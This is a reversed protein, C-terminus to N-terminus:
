TPAGPRRWLHYDQHPVAVRGRGISALAGIRLLGENLERVWLSILGVDSGQPNLISLDVTFTQGRSFELFHHLGGEKTAHTLRDVPSRVAMQRRANAPGVKGQVVTGNAAIPHVAAEDFRGTEVQMRGANALQAGEERTDLALGFLSAVLQYGLSREKLAQRVRAFYASTKAEDEKSPPTLESRFAPHVIHRMTWSRLAGRVSSAPVFHYTGVEDGAIEYGYHLAAVVHETDKGTTKEAQKWSFRLGQGRSKSGGSETYSVSLGNRIALPTECRLEWRARLVSHIGAAFIRHDYM